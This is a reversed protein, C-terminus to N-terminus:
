KRAKQLYVNEWCEGCSGFSMCCNKYKETACIPNNNNESCAIKLAKKYVELEKKLKMKDDILSLLKHQIEEISMVRGESEM